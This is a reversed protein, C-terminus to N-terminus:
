IRKSTKLVAPPTRVGCGFHGIRYACDHRAGASGVEGPLAHERAHFRRGQKDRAGLIGGPDLEVTGRAIQECSAEPLKHEDEASRMPELLGSLQLFEGAQSAVPEDPM